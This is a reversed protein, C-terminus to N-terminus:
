DAYLRREPNRGSAEYENKTVGSPARWM